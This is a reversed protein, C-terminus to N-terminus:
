QLAQLAVSGRWGGVFLREVRAEGVLVPYRGRAPRRPRVQVVMVASVEGGRHCPVLTIQGLACSYSERVNMWGQM